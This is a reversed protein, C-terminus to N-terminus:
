IESLKHFSIMSSAFSASLKVQFRTFQLIEFPQMQGGPCNINSNAAYLYGSYVSLLFASSSVYQM